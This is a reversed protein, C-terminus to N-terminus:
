LRLDIARIHGPVPTDGPLKPDAEPAGMAYTFPVVGAWVPLAYDEDDDVPPGTRIKASAETIPFRLVTTAKLEQPNPGRIEDWRGPAIREVFAKLSALKYDPDDVEEAQGFLVVSRYNVSHHMASRAMVLGDVLTVVICAEAGDKLAKITRSATSGHIYFHDGERWYGTPICFPQGDMAFSVHCLFGDDLIAYLTETDFKGREHLRKLRTRNSVALDPM